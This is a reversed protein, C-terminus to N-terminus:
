EAYALAHVREGGIPGVLTATGTALDITYLGSSPAGNPTLAAYAVDTDGIRAVDFGVGAEIGFGLPGVTNSVGDNPLSVLVLSGIMADIAYMTTTAAGDENNTFACEVLHPIAGQYTDGVAYEPEADEEVLSGTDPSVRLNRQTITVVRIRDAVPSVDIGWSAGSLPEALADGIVTAAGTAPDITYLRSTSGYGYLLGNSPRVDLSLITESPLLGTIETTTVSGPTAPVFRVLRNSEDVAFFAPTDVSGDTAADDGADGGGGSGGGNECAACLALLLSTFVTITRVHM